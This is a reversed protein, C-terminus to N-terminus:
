DSPILLIRSVLSSELIEQTLKLQGHLTLHVHHVHLLQAHRERRNIFKNITEVTSM